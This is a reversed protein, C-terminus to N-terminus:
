DIIVQWKDEVGCTMQVKRRLEKVEAKLLALDEDGEPRFYNSVVIYVDRGTIHVALAKAVEYPVSRICSINRANVLGVALGSDIDPDRIDDDPWRLTCVNPLHTVMEALHSPAPQNLQISGIFASLPALISPSGHSGGLPVFINADRFPLSALATAFGRAEIAEEASDIIWEMHREADYVLQTEPPWNSPWHKGWSRVTVEQWACGEPLVLPSSLNFSHLTIHSLRPMGALHAAWQNSLCAWPLVLKKLGM